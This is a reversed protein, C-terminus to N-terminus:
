GRREFLFLKRQSDDLAESARSDYFASFAELFGPVSYDAFSEQRRTLFQVAPDDKPVFEILLWRGLRALFEAIRRLPLNGTVRLHHMLALCMVLDARPREFLSLTTNLGFGLSPSPNALDMVLPLVRSGRKSRQKLYLSNVCGADSDFAVCLAGTEAAAEAFLGTNTGVDFVLSPRVRDIMSRVHSQKSEAAAATYFRSEQYYNTWGPSYKPSKIHEVTRRLSRVLHLGITRNAKKPREGANPRARSALAHLHIHLLAGPRFYSKRPLRRSIRELPFGDIDTRMYRNADSSLYSMAFLPGLFHRCFQEYAAWAGGADREFSLTDVFVANSGRFQVNYASADKLAMGCRLAREQLTLTVLAADKLQDFSWEYPYSVFRLQEPVLVKVCGSGALESPPEEERHDLVLGDRVLQRHLGSGVYHEYDPLGCGTVARKYAGGDWYVFGADDRFSSPLPQM